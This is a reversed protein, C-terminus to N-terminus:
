SVYRFTQSQILWEMTPKGKKKISTFSPNPVLIFSESFTRMESEKLPGIRVGGGVLVLITMAMGKSANSIIEGKHDVNPIITQCDYADIEYYIPSMAETVATQFDEPDLFENGNFNISSFALSPLKTESEDAPAYFSPIKTQESQLARYYKQIHNQAAESSAKILDDESPEAM